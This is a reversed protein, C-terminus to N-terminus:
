LKGVIVTGVSDTGTAWIRKVRWPHVIGAALPLTLVAGAETTVKVNGATQILIGHGIYGLDSDAPTVTAGNRLPELYYSSM